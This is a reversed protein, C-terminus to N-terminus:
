RERERGGEGGVDVDVDVDVRERGDAEAMRREDEGRGPEWTNSTSRLAALCSGAAATGGAGTLWSPLSRLGM